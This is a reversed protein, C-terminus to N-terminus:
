CRGALFRVRPQEHGSDQTDRFSHVVHWDNAEAQRLREVREWLAWSPAAEVPLDPTLCLM